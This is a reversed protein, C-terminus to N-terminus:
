FHIEHAESVYCHWAKQWISLISYWSLKTQIVLLQNQISLHKNTSASGIRLLVTILTQTLLRTTLTDAYLVVVSLAVWTRNGDWPGKCSGSGERKGTSEQRREVTRDWYFAYSAWLFLKLFFSYDTSNYANWDNLLSQLLVKLLTIKHKIHVYFVKLM